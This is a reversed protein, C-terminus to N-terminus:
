ASTFPVAPTVRVETLSLTLASPENLAIVGGGGARCRGRLVGAVQVDARHLAGLLRHFEDVLGQTRDGAGAGVETRDLGAEGRDHGVQLGRRFVQRRRAAADLVGVEGLFGGLQGAGLDQLLGTRGHQGLGVLYRLVHEAQQLASM